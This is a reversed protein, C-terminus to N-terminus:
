WVYAIVEGGVNEEKAKVGTMVGKSTSIIAVGLGNLVSPIEEATSYVRLGPKSIQRLGIISSVKKKYKLKIETEFKNNELDKNYFDEIFGEDKLVQLIATKIKSTQVRVSAKKVKKANRIKTLLESIPDSHM